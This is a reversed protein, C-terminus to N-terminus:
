TREGKARGLQGASRLIRWAGVPEESRSILPLNRKLVHLRKENVKPAAIVGSSKV